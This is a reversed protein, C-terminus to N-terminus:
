RVRDNSFVYIKTSFFLFLFNINPIFKSTFRISSFGFFRSSSFHNFSVRQVQKGEFMRFLVSNIRITEALSRYKTDVKSFGITIAHMCIIVHRHKHVSLYSAIYLFAITLSFTHFIFMRNRLFGFDDFLCCKM